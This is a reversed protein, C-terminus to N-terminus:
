AKLKDYDLDETRGESAFRNPVNKTLLSVVIVVVASCALAVLTAYPIGKIQSMVAGVVMGCRSGWATVRSNKKGEVIGEAPKEKWLLGIVIVPVLGSGAMSYAKSFLSIINSAYLACVCAVVGIIVTFIKALKIKSKDSLDPKFPAIIDNVVLIAGSNLNSDASSMGACLILFFIAIGIVPPCVNMMFWPMASNADLDQNLTMIIFGVIATMCTFVIAIIGSYVMGNRATKKDKAGFCRQWYHAAVMTGMLGTVFLNLIHLPDVGKLSLMESKGVAALRETLVSWSFNVQKFAFLYFIIGFVVCVIGQFLDTWIVSYIGGLVTYLIFVISFIIIVATGSQGTFVEFITGLGKGQGGCWSIMICAALFAAMARSIKDRVILDDIMEPFSNYVLRGALAAFTFGFVVKAGQEGAIFVLQSVGNVYGNGAHGIFNGAGMITAFQTFFILFMPLNAGAIAFNAFSKDASNKVRWSIWFFFGCVVATIIWFITGLNNM